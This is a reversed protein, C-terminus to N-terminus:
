EAQYHVAFFLFTLSLQYLGHLKMFVSFRPALHPPPPCCPYVRGNTLTGINVHIDMTDPWPKPDCEIEALKHSTARAQM